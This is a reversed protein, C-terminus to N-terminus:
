FPDHVASWNSADELSRNVADIVATSVLGQYFTSRCRELQTVTMSRAEIAAIDAIFRHISRHGYGTFHMSGDPEPLFESFYPNISQIGETPHVLEIGRHKQDCHLRGGTGVITYSQDSLASSCDPDIWNTSVRSVFWEKRRRPHEWIIDALVADFTDVGDAKLHGDIGVAMARVPRYGTLFYILDVYHVGLYQFINTM